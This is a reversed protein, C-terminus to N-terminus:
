FKLMAEALNKQAEESYWMSVFERQKEPLCAEIADMVPQTRNRKIVAFADLSASALSNALQISVPMLQDPPVVEDVLGLGLLEEPSYFDGGEMIRSATKGGVMDRLIRDATWPVAVGLKVENLGMVMRGASVIRHDACLAIIAGGATAHGTIACVTPKPLTYLDICLGEFAELFRAFEEQDMDILEPIDLGISFFKDGESTLVMARAEPDEAVERITARLDNILQWGIANTISKALRAIAIAGEKHLWVQSM